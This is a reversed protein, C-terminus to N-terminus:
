NNIASLPIDPLGRRSNVKSIPLSYVRSAFIEQHAVIYLVSNGLTWHLFKLESNLQPVYIVPGTKISMVRDHNGLISFSIPEIYYYTLTQYVTSM